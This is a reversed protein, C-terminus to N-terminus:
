WRPVGMERLEAEEQPTYGAAIEECVRSTLRVLDNMVRIAHEGIEVM